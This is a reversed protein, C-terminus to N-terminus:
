PLPATPAGEGGSIFVKKKKYVYESKIKKVEGDPVDNRLPAGGGLFFGPDAGAVTRKTQITHTIHLTYRYIKSKLKRSNIRFLYLRTARTYTRRNESSRMQLANPAWIIKICM